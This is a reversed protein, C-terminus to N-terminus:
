CRRLRISANADNKSRLAKPQPMATVMAFRSTEAKLLLAIPIALVAAIASADFVSAIGVKGALFGLLPSGVGLTLDLFANYAGM